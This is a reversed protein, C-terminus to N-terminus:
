TSKVNNIELIAAEPDIKSPHTTISFQWGERASEVEEKWRSGKPFILVTSPKTLPAAYGLLGSLDSLARATIIDFTRNSLTELRQSLIEANLQLERVATRLFASKRQDSEALTFNAQEGNHKALIALVLAPFGGGSGMDLINQKGRDLLPWIQVSDWVHRSMVRKADSVSILNIKRNWKLVLETYAKFDDMTERSVDFPVWDPVDSM